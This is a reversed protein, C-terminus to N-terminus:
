VEMTPDQQWAFTLLKCGQRVLSSWKLIYIYVCVGMYFASVKGAVIYIYLALYGVFYQASFKCSLM